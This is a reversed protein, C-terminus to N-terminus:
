SQWRFIGASLWRKHLNWAFLASVRRDIHQHTELPGRGHTGLPFRSVCFLFRLLLPLTDTDRALREGDTYAGSPLLSSQEPPVKFCHVFGLGCIM